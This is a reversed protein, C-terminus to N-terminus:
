IVVPMKKLEGVSLIAAEPPNIIAAFNEIGYMELNSVTFAGGQYDEPMLKEGSGIKYARKSRTIISNGRKVKGRKVCASDFRILYVTKVV